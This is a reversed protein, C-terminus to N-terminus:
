LVPVAEIFRLNVVINDLGLDLPELIEYRGDIVEGPTLM